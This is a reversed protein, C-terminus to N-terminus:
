KESFEVLVGTKGGLVRRLHFDALPMNGHEGVLAAFSQYAAPDSAKLLDYSCVYAATSPHDYREAALPEYALLPKSKGKLLLEGVPLGQFGDIKKVTSQSVCITTGLQKNVTELRAAVNVADGHATYDFFEKSGFNGVIATGTNIGIRTLNVTADLAKNNIAFERAFADLRLACDVARKAHDPQEVPAGFMAHVADGVIKTVTGEHEFVIKTLGELYENLVDIILSPDTAEVLPTFSALDTFMFTAERREGSNEFFAPDDQLATVVSPSFFRSLAERDREADAKEEQMTHLMSTHELTKKITTELDDFSIPKTLFDFAGRNMASRINKMDGYASVIVAALDQQSNQLQDLLTLGDMRPMNIDSLVMRVDEDGALIELAEQGDGAFLFSLEGKRIERRFKQTILLELDPEDDVVLITVAM